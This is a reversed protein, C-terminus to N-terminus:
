VVNSVRQTIRRYIPNQGHYAREILFCRSPIHDFNDRVLNLAQELPIRWYGRLKQASQVAQTIADALQSGDESTISQSLNKLSNITDTLSSVASTLNEARLLSAEKKLSKTAEDFM